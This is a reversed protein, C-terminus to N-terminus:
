LISAPTPSDEFFSERWLQAHVFRRVLESEDETWHGRLRRSAVFDRIRPGDWVPCELFGPTNVLTWVWEGLAGDFWTAMPPSFGIKDKRRRVPEPLMGRMAERLVRKTYGGGLKSSEPLAFSYCAVRWDMFPMRVEVGHAMSCRELNRLIGPLVTHHFHSYLMGDLPGLSEVADLEDVDVWSHVPPATPSRLWSSPVFGSTSGAGGRGAARGAVRLVQTRRVRRSLLRLQTAEGVPYLPQLTGLLEATRRVRLLSTADLEAAVHASYGALLEDSGHGDLSVVVGDQRLARYISWLPMLLSGGFNEFDYVFNRVDEIAVEPDMPCYRAEAGTREIVMEAYAREDKWTDPFTAVFARQFDDSRRGGQGGKTACSPWRASCQARTSAM